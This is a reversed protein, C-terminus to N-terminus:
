SPSGNSRWVLLASGGPFLEWAKKSACFIENYFSSKTQKLSWSRRVKKYQHSKNVNQHIEQQAQKDM